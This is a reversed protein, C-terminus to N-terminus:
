LNMAVNNIVLSNVKLLYTASEIFLLQSCSTEVVYTRIYTAKTHLQHPGVHSFGWCDTAISQIYM